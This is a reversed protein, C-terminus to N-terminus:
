AEFFGDPYGIAQLDKKLAECESDTLRKLPYTCNGVDFGDFELIKKVAPIGGYKLMVTILSNAKYQERRAAELDGRRFADYINVFSKPAINYTSGIGAHAGMTLGCVLTEDPGNIVNIDGGNLALIKWM